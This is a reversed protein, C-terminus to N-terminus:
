DNRLVEATAGNAASHSPFVAAANAVAFAVGALVFLALASVQVEAAVGLGDAVLGWAVRGVVVGLPLGALLGVVTITNAQWHVSHRVQARTFGLAKLMAFDFRRRRASTILSHVLTVIALLALLGALVYPLRDLQTVRDLEGPVIPGVVDDPETTLTALRQAEADRDAGAVWRVYLQSFGGDGDQDKTVAVALADETMGIGDALTGEALSPFVAQGVVEVRTTGAPGAVEVSDGIGVGLRDITEAGLVAEDATRPPRGDVVTLFMEGKIQRFGFAAVPRGDVEVNTARVESVAEVRDGGVDDLELQPGGVVVDWNWGYAQPTTSLHDLSTAFVLTALVGAVGVTAGILSPRVSASTRGAGQEFALRVGAVTTPAAGSRALRSAVRSRRWEPETTAAGSGRVAARTVRWAAVGAFGSTVVAIVAFGLGVVLGDFAVGPDPEMERAIGFPFAPSLALAGVM